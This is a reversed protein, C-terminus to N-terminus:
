IYSCGKLVLFTFTNFDSLYFAFIELKLTQLTFLFSNFQSIFQSISDILRNKKNQIKMMVEM